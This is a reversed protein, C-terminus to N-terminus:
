TRERRGAREIRDAVYYANTIRGLVLDGAVEEAIERLDERRAREAEKRDRRRRPVLTRLHVLGRGRSGCAGGGSRRRAPLDRGISQGDVDLEVVLGDIRPDYRPASRVM